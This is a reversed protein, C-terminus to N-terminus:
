ALDAHQGGLACIDDRSPVIPPTRPHLDESQKGGTRSRDFNRVTCYFDDKSSKRAIRRSIKALSGGTIARCCGRGVGCCCAVGM